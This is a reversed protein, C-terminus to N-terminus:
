ADTGEKTERESAAPPVPQPAAGTAPEGAHDIAPAGAAQVDAVKPVRRTSAADVDRLLVRVLDDRDPTALEYEHSMHIANYPCAAVCLGCMMCAGVEYVYADIHKGGEEKSHSDIRLIHDPCERVCIMCATCKPSGDENFNHTVTWRARPPLELKQEPYQVTITGRFMNRLTIAFGKLIGAGWM